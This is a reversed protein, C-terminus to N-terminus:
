AFIFPRNRKVCSGSHTLPFTGKLKVGGPKYVLNVKDFRSSVQKFFFIDERNVTNVWIDYRDVIPSSIIQPILYQMYRRRGAPTVCVVKFENFM